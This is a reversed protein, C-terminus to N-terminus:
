EGPFKMLDLVKLFMALIRKLFRNSLCIKSLYETESYPKIQIVSIDGQLGSLGFGKFIALMTM